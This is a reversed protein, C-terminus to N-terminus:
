QPSPAPLNKSVPPTYGPLRVVGEEVVAVMVILRTEPDITRDSLGINRLQVRDSDYMASQMWHPFSGNQSNKADVRFRGIVGKNVTGKEECEYLKQLNRLVANVKSTKIKLNSLNIVKAM